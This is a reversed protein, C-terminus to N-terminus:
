VNFIWRFNQLSRSQLSYIWYVLLVLLVATMIADRHKEKPIMGFLYGYSISVMAGTHIGVRGLYASGMGAMMAFAHFLMGNMYFEQTKDMKKRDCSTFFLIVPVFGVAIRLPNIDRTMYADTWDIITGKFLEVLQMVLEYSFRILVAGAALIIFQTTDPKRAYLFYPLIMVIASKHFLMALVVTLLYPVFKRKLIYRHGAFVIAAALYQRIGNFSGTWDGLFLFILMSVLYMPSYRYIVLSYIGTIIVACVFILVAGDDAILTSIRSLLRIGPERFHILYDWVTKWDTVRTRYYAMYDTGVRYRLGAVAILIAATAFAFVPDPRTRLTGTRTIRSRPNTQALYGFVLTAALVILYVASIIM